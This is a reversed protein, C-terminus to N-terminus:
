EYIIKLMFNWSEYTYVKTMQHITNFFFGILQKLIYIGRISHKFNLSCKSMIYQNM